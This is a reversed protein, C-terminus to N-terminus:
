TNVIIDLWNAAYLWPDSYSFLSVTVLGHCPLSSCLYGKKASSFSSRLASTINWLSGQDVSPRNTVIRPDHRYVYRKAWYLYNLFALLGVVAVVWYFLDLRSNNLSTAELWGGRSGHRTARNVIQVLFTALLSSLGLVCWFLAAAISKMRRPAESNFFELLGPFSTVDSVGLLFFQPTLWFLSIQVAAEKRKREVVAAIVSALIISAFGIGVRQLHTIGSAYGTRKRLFPVLFQDYIPLM